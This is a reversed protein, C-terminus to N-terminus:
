ELKLLHLFPLVDFSRGEVAIADISAEIQKVFQDRFLWAMLGITDATEIFSVASPSGEANHVQAM